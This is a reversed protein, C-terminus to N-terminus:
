RLRDEDLGEVIANRGNVIEILRDMLRDERLREEASKLHDPKELLRRLEGEVGPQQEELDQTKAIYVLESERRIYIQKKRILNFWAVMLPDMLLDGEGEEECCRLRKEMEVGKRELDGLSDEIQRLEKVIQDRPIHHSSPPRMESRSSNTPAFCEGNKSGTPCQRRQMPSWSTPPSYRDCKLGSGNSSHGPQNPTPIRHWVPVLPPTSLLPSYSGNKTGLGASNHGPPLKPSPARPPIPKPSPPDRPSTSGVNAIVSMASSEFVVDTKLKAVVVAHGDVEADSSYLGHGKKVPKLKSRWYLPAEACVVDETTSSATTSKASEEKTDLWHAEKNNFQDTFNQAEPQKVAAPGCETQGSRRGATRIVFHRTNNNNCNAEALKNTIVARARIKNEEACLSVNRLGSPGVPRQSSPPREPASHSSQFFRQRAAQTKQASSTWPQPDPITVSEVPKLTVVIPTLLVSTSRTVCQGRSDDSKPDVTSSPPATQLVSGPFSPKCSNQHNNCIFSGPERCPKYAGALLVKSCESCRFCSRHYLKGEIFHRQVLHVHCKCVVCKSSLTGTKNTTEVLVETKQPATRHEKPSTRVHVTCPDPLNTLVETVVVAMSVPLNKKESPEEKSGEAPRKIGGMGGIPNRGNFYNYYQSVYTLVSLRDPVRLAVMDEADLLAPIGLVDDAVRFALQNNYFVDEKRLSDYDILDPKHKHILACFALGDRFSTTMNTINVDRYGACKVKCWQQLAKIASM